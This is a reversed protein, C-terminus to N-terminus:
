VHFSIFSQVAIPGLRLTTRMNIASFPTQRDRRFCRHTTRAFSPAGWRQSRASKHGDATESDL